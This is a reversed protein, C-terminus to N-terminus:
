FPSHCLSFGILASIYRCTASCCISEDLYCREWSLTLGWAADIVVANRRQLLTRSRSLGKAWQFYSLFTGYGDLLKFGIDFSFLVVNREWLDLLQDRWIGSMQLGNVECKKDLNISDSVLIDQIQTTHFRLRISSSGFKNMMLYSLYCNQINMWCCIPKLQLGSNTHLKM